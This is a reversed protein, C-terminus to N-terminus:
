AKAGMLSNEHKRTSTKEHKQSATINPPLLVGDELHLVRDAFAQIRDDHTVVVLSGGRDKVLKTLLRM